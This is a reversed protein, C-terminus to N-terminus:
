EVSITIAINDVNWYIIPPVYKVIDLKNKLGRLIDDDSRVEIGNNMENPTASSDTVYVNVSKIFPRNAHVFEIILSNYFTVSSGTFNKQLYEAVLLELKEKELSVDINNKQIYNRDSKIEIKINLPLVINPINAWSVGNWIYYINTNLVLVLDNVVPSYFTWQSTESSYIGIKNAHASFGGSPTASVRYRSVGALNVSPPADRTEIVPDLFNYVENSFITGSQIFVSEIFPSTIMHSNLFRCQVSDTIMRNKNFKSLSIFNKIKDLYYNPDSLFVANDVVPINILYENIGNKYRMMRLQDSVDILQYFKGTKCIFKVTTLPGNLVAPTNINNGTLGLVNLCTSGAAVNGIFINTVTGGPPPTLQLRNKGDDDVYVSAINTGVGSNINAAIQSATRSGSTLTVTMFANTYGVSSDNFKIKLINSVGNVIVFNECNNSVISTSTGGRVVMQIEDEFIGFTDANTYQYEFYNNEFPYCVMRKNTINCKPGFISITFVQDYINQYSKLKITTTYTNINYELNLYVVPTNFGTGIINMEPIIEVFSIKASIDTMLYGDYYNMRTNGKYIYPSVFTSGGITFSPNYFIEQLEYSIPEVALTGTTGTDTYSYTAAPVTPIVEWYRDRFVPTRGYVRYESAYPVHDWTITVSNEGSGVVATVVKSPASRGWKDISVVFYGYTGSILTGSSTIATATINYSSTTVFTLSMVQETHNTTYFITQNRDRFSRCLYFTNDLVNLKKFLFKFDTLQNKVVNYFDQQSVLNDRTQIFNIITDRLDEGSLPDRGGEAYDFNVLPQQMIIPNLGVSSLQGGSSYVYDFALVPGDLEIKTNTKDILNGAAGRTSKIVLRISAGSIWKGRVGSGFELIYNTSTVKRLFVKADNGSTLYKAYEISYREEISSGVETVYVELDSLYYGPDIGFYHTQHSGFNYPKLEFSIEKTNTQITSYLPASITVSPSPITIKMGDNTMIDVFYYTGSTEIVEIFKYVADISFQIDNIKFTSSLSKYTGTSAAFGVIVERRVVNSQRRPLNNIMDFEITGVASAATAFSPIYGYISAHLYQNAEIQSTGIFAEKFLSDYYQKLDFHTYGLLNLFFGVFGVKSIQLDYVQLDTKLKEYYYNVFEEPTAYNLTPPTSAM